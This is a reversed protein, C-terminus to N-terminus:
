KRFSLSLVKKQYDIVAKYESLLDSGLVGDIPKLGLKSYSQNVHSLDLLVSKYNSVSITGLQIKRILALHSKMTSTGLGTSLQDNLDFKTEKVFRGIRKSDFVTKSAGTDILLHASRNNIKARISLHLGDREIKIFKLPIRTKKLLDSPSLM